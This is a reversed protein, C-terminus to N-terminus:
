GSRRRDDCPGRGARVADDGEAAMIGGVNDAGTRELSRSRQRSVYDPPLSRTATWASWSTPHSTAASRPTSRRRAYPGTPNPVLM